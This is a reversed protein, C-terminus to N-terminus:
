NDLLYVSHIGNEFNVVHLMSTGKRLEKWGTPVCEDIDSVSEVM